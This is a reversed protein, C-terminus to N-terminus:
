HGSGGRKRQWTQPAAVSPSSRWMRNPTTAAATTAPPPPPSAQQPQTQPQQPPPPPPLQTPQQPQPIVSSVSPEPFHGVSIAVRRADCLRQAEVSYGGSGLGCSGALMSGTPSLSGCGVVGASPQTVPGNLHFSVQEGMVMPPVSPPEGVMQPQPAAAYAMAGGGTTAGMMPSAAGMMPSTPSTGGMMPSTDGTGQMFQLSGDYAITVGPASCPMMAPGATAAAVSVVSVSASADQQYSVQQAATEFGFSPVGSYAQPSAVGFGPGPLPPVPPMLSPAAAEFGQWTAPGAECCPALACGAPAQGVVQGATAAAPSPLFDSLRLLTGAVGGQMPPAAAAVVGAVSPVTLAAGVTSIHAHAHAGVGATSPTSAHHSSVLIPTRIKDLFVHEPAFNSPVTKPPTVVSITKLPSGYHIFTNKVELGWPHKQGLSEVASVSRALAEHGPSTKTPTVWVPAGAPPTQVMAPSRNEKNQAIAAATARVHRRQPTM